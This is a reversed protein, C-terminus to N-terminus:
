GHPKELVDWILRSDFTEAAFLTMVVVAAFFSAGVGPTITAIPGFNVLAVMVAIVYIDVMSWRGVGELIRYLITRDKPKTHSKIQVSILLYVLSAIKLLPVVISAFFVLLALPWMGEELLKQVGSLITDPEGYHGFGVVTMVPLLNAPIYLIVAAILWAWTRRLSNPKRPHSITRCRHCAIVGGPKPAPLTLHCIPCCTIRTPNPKPSPPIASGADLREWIERNDLSAAAATTAVIMGGIAFLAIGPTIAALDALKVFAVMAGLLYVEMMGWHRLHSISKMLPKAGPMPPGSRLPLLIYLMSSLTILPVLISTAAVLTGLGPMGREAIGAVASLLTAERMRGHIEFAMLPHHIAILFFIFGTLTFALARDLSNPHRRFLVMACRRCRGVGRKPLPLPQSQTLGCGSCAILQHPTHADKM